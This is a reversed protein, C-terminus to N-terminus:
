NASIHYTNVNIMSEADVHFDHIFITFFDNM